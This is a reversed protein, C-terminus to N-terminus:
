TRDFWKKLEYASFSKVLPRGHPCHAAFDINDLEILLAQIEELNMKQGARISSHCAMTACVHEHLKLASESRGHTSLDSILDAILSELNVSALFRPVSRVVVSDEGFKEVELGLNLFEHSHEEFEAMQAFDLKIHVPLLLQDHEFKLKLIKEFMIREHAAHQDVVVLGEPGETLLYTKCLQGIAKLDSFKNAALLKSESPQYFLTPAYSTKSFGLAELRAITQSSGPSSVQGFSYPVFSSEVSAEQRLWPTQALFEGIISIIHGLVRREERFRVEAKRPHVNVDVEKPDIDIKIAAVPNNGVQLLTRFATKVAMTLKKDSVLRGNVFIVISRSDRRLVMPASVMGSLRLLDTSKDIPYLFGATDLGLLASARDMDEDSSVSNIVQRDDIFLKWSIKPYLFAYSSLLRHIEASETRKSKAFKLRAPVNFFLDRVEIRTGLTAGAKGMEVVTGADVVAKHAHAADAPRSIISLRSISAISPLAEGRFGFTSMSELDHVTKLKSTAYRKCSLLVDSEDMGCGDDQVVLHTFGGDKIRVEISSAKADLSNEILEKVVSAPREVVEGAAIQNAIHMDLEIIKGM